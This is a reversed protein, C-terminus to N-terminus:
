VGGKPVGVYEDKLLNAKSLCKFLDKYINDFDVKDYTVSNKWLLIISNGLAINDENLRYVERILRKVRNRKVSSKSFKKSVAIGIENQNTNNKLVYIIM